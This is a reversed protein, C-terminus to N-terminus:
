LAPMWFGNFCLIARVSESGFIERLSCRLSKALEVRVICGGGRLFPDRRSTLLFNGVRAILSKLSSWSASASDAQGNDFLDDARVMTSNFHIAKIRATALKRDHQRARALVPRPLWGSM